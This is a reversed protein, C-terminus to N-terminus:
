VFKERQFGIFKHGPYEQEALKGIVGYVNGAKSKLVTITISKGAFLDKLEDSTFTHGGWASSIKINKGNWEGVTKDKVEVTKISLATRM